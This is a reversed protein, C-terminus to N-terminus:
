TNLTPLQNFVMNSQYFKMGSRNKNKYEVIIFKHVRGNQFYVNEFRYPKPNIICTILIYHM